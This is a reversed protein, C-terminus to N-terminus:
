SKEGRGEREQADGPLQDVSKGVDSDQSHEDDNRSRKQNIVAQYVRDALVRDGDSVVMAADYAKLAIRKACAEHEIVGSMLHKAATITGNKANADVEAKRASLSGLMVTKRISTTM